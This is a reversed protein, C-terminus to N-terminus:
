ASQEQSIRWKSIDKILQPGNFVLGTYIQVAVANNKFRAEVDEATMIGGSAILETCGLEQAFMHLKMVSKMTIQAGSLGGGMTHHHNNDTNNVIVGDIYHDNIAKCYEDLFEFNNMNPSVKIVIPVYKGTKETMQTQVKSVEECIKDIHGGFILERNDEVNPCSMNITVYDVLSHAYRYLASYDLWADEPITHEDKVINLGIVGQYKRPKELQRVVHMIGKNPLGLRNVIGDGLRKMRPKDNGKIPALSVSGIEIFGFGLCGLADIYDGNKDMGAALGVPNTLDLGMMRTPCSPVIQTYGLKAVISLMVLSVKASLEPPLLFLFFRIVKYM